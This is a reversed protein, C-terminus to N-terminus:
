QQYRYKDTSFLPTNLRFDNFGSFDVFTFQRNPYLWTVVQRRDTPFNQNQTNTPPGFIIYVMGMDSMWGEGTSRFLENAREVRAYFQEFAENRNTSPTPDLKRWFEEFKAFKAEDTPMREIEDIEASTGVYRLQRIAKAIDPVSLGAVSREFYISRSVTFLVENKAKSSVSEAKKLVQIKLTYRGVPINKPLDIKEYHPTASKQLRTTKRKSTFVSTNSQNEVTAIIDVESPINQSYLQLFAFFGNPFQSINDSLHPTIIYKEDQQELDALLLISSTAIPLNESYRNAVLQRSKQMSTKAIEDYVVVDIRYDGPPLLNSFQIIESNGREDSSNQSEKFSLKKDKKYNYTTGTSSNKIIVEVIFHVVYENTSLVKQVNKFPVQVFVDMRNSDAKQSKFVGVDFFFQDRETALQSIQAFGNSIIVTFCLLIFIPFLKMQNRKMRPLFIMNQRM